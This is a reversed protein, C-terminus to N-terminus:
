RSSRSPGTAPRRWFQGPLPPPSAGAIRTACRVDLTSFHCPDKVRLPILGSRLSELARAAAGTARVILAPQTPAITNQPPFAEPPSTLSYRLCM